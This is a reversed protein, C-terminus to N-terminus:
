RIPYHFVGSESGAKQDGKRQSEGDINGQRLLGTLNFLEM